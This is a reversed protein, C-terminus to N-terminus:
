IALSRPWSFVSDLGHFCMQPLAHGNANDAKGKAFQGAWAALKSTQIASSQM